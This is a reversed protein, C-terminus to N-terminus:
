ELDRNQHNGLALSGSKMVNSREAESWDATSKLSTVSHITPDIDPLSSALPLPYVAQGPNQSFQRIRGM